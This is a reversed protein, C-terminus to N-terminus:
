PAEEPQWGPSPSGQTIRGPYLARPPNFLNLALVSDQRQKQQTKIDGVCLPTYNANLFM